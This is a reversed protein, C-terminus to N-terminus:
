FIKDGYKYLAEDIKYLITLFDNSIQLIKKSM